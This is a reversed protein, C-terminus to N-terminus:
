HGLPLEAGAKDHLGFRDVMTASAENLGMVEVQAGERRFKLVVKDLASVATIDWFHAVSVDIRVQKVVEKFDFSNVFSEASAFFVQGTVTYVRTQGDDQQSSAVRMMRGVKNAFFIGSLLVGVFVGKALDHT